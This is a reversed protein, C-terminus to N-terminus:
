DFISDINVSKHLVLILIMRILNSNALSTKTKPVLCDRLVMCVCCYFLITCLLSYYFYVEDVQRLKMVFVGCWMVINFCYLNSPSATTFMSFDKNMSFVRVCRFSQSFEREILISM